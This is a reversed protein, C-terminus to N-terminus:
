NYFQHIHVGVVREAYGVALEGLDFRVLVLDFLYEGFLVLVAFFALVEVSVDVGDGAEGDCSLEIPFLSDFLPALPDLPVFVVPRILDACVFSDDALDM